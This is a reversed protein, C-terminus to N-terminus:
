ESEEDVGAEHKPDDTPERADTMFHEVEKADEAFEQALLAMCLDLEHLEDHLLEAARLRLEENSDPKLEEGATTEGEKERSPPALKTKLAEVAM